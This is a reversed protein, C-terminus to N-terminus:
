SNEIDDYLRKLVLALAWLPLPQDVQQKWQEGTLYGREYLWAVAEVRYPPTNSPYGERAKQALQQQGLALLANHMSIIKQGYTQGQQYAEEFSSYLKTDYGPVAWKGTLDEWNPASGRTVYQFRPDVITEGKPVADKTAYAFLHQIHARVGQEITPFSAGRAGGGVAGIGAFNNQDARVDGGFRFWNTELIAQSFAVDGRVGYIYGIRLYAEAIEPNFSPNIRRVFETMTTSSAQSKGLIPHKTDTSAVFIVV